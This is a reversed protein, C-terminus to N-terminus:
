HSTAAVTVALGQLTADISAPAFPRLRDGVALSAEAALAFAGTTQGAAFTVTFVDTWAGAGTKKKFTVVSDATPAVDCFAASGPLGAPLTLPVVVSFAPLQEDAGFHGTASFPIDYRNGSGIEVDRWTASFGGLVADIRYIGAPVYFFAFGNADANFPNGIPTAGANDSYLQVFAGTAELRVTVAAAPQVNGAADTVTFQYRSLAM